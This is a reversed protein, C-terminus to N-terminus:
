GIMLTITYVVIATYVAFFMMSSLFAGAQVRFGGGMISRHDGGYAFRIKYKKRFLVSYAFALVSLPFYVGVVVYCHTAMGYNPDSLGDLLNAVFGIVLFVFNWLMLKYFKNIYMKRHLAVCDRDSLGECNAELTKLGSPIYYALWWVIGLFCIGYSVFMLVDWFIQM